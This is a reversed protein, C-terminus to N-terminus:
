NPRILRRQERGLASKLVRAAAAYFGSTDREICLDCFKPGWLFLHRTLLAHQGQEAHPDGTTNARDALLALFELEVAIHDAPESWGDANLGHDQLLAAIESTAEQCIRGNESTYVSEYVPVQAHRDAGLFLRAFAVALDLSTGDPDSWSESLAIMGAMSESLEPVTALQALMERGEASRYGALTEPSPERKLLSSLWLYLTPRFDVVCESSITTDM